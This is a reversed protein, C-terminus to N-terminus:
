LVVEIENFIRVINYFNNWIIFIMRYLEKGLDEPEEHPREDNCHSEEHDHIM